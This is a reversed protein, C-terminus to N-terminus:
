VVRSASAARDARYMTACASAWQAISVLFDPLRKVVDRERGIRGPTELDDLARALGEVSQGALWKL